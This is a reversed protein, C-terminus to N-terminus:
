KNPIYQGFIEFHHFGLFKSSDWNAETRFIEISKVFEKNKIEDNSSIHLPDSSDSSDVFESITIKQNSMTKGVIKWGKMKYNLNNRKLRYGDVSVAGNLFKIKCFGEVSPIVKQSQLDHIYETSFYKSDFKVPWM